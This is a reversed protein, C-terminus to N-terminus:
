HSGPFLIVFRGRHKNMVFIRHATYSLHQNHTHAFVMTKSGLSTVALSQVTNTLKWCWLQHFFLPFVMLIQPAHKGDNGIVTETSSAIPPDSAM